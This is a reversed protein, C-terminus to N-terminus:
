APSTPGWAGTPGAGFTLHRKTLRDLDLEGASPFEAEDRNASAWSLVVHAGEEIRHGDIAADSMTTRMAAVFPGDLRLLEEVANPILEPRRGLLAPIEPQRSFRIIIEGLTGATTELGGLILLNIIGYIEDNTIPRGQIEAALVADVVDGRPPENRRQEVLDVIWHLMGGWSEAAKPHGPMSAATAMENIEEVQDAPAHLVQDFFALGPFPRAFQAMFDCQGDEVFQDILRTALERTAPEYKSVVAPTFYANILRKYTTHLPPDISVPIMPIPPPTTGPMKNVNSFTRWDQAVKLVDQYRTLTWQGGHADTHAVPCHVRMRQLAEHFHEHLMPSTFDFHAACWEDTIGRDGNGASTAQEGSSSSPDM